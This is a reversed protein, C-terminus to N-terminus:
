GREACDALFSMLPTADDTTFLLDLARNFEFRRAFPVSVADFGNAMLEGSMMLRATRKNGDFYFQQRTAAAFYALARERPDAVGGLFDITHVYRERLYEGGVGPEIGPVVGGNALQVTGGGGVQGEGRFHGAEIAEYRALLGHVRDSIPKAIAFGGAGVIEDVFSYADSLALIQKADENPKGGVTVGDLLTQVEPLTFSNGELAAANWILNPLGSRFRHRSREVSGRQIRDFDIATRDWFM